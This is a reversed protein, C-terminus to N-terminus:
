TIVNYLILLYRARTIATYLIGNKDQQDPNLNINGINVITQQYSSGQSKHVTLAHNYKTNAFNGLFDHRTVHKLRKKGCAFLLNRKVNEFHKESDEHIVFVGRWTLNGDGWLDVQEGNIIYCKLSVENTVFTNIDEMVITFVVDEVHLTDVKIEESTYYDGYPEDFILTEGQEIKAPNTYIRERVKSNIKDVEANTWALYKLEDTGNVKALEEVVKNEDFSYVFGKRQEGEETELLRTKFKWIQSINRSLTIIPNGVEQRVIEILEFTPYNQEFVVRVHEKVPIIQKDDGIFIVTCNQKEAHEEIYELMKEGIMSCEDIILVSVGKLPPNKESYMPVFEKEGSVKDVRMGIKMAKHTTILHVNRKGETNIKSSLEGVAKNTPASVYIQKYSPILQCIREIIENTSYTKGVGASGKLLLRKSTQYADLLQTIVEEQHATVAM